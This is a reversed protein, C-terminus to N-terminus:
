TYIQGHKSVSLVRISRFSSFPIWTKPIRAPAIPLTHPISHGKYLMWSTAEKLPIGPNMEVNGISCWCPNDGKSVLLSPFLTVLGLNTPIPPKSKFKFNKKRHLQQKRHHTTERSGAVQPSSKSVPLIFRPALQLLVSAKRWGNNRSTESQIHSAPTM